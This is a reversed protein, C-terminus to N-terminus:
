LIGGLHCGRQSAGHEGVSDFSDEVAMNGKHNVNDEVFFIAENRQCFCLSQWCVNFDETASVSCRMDDNSEDVDPFGDAIVVIVADLVSILIQKVGDEDTIACPGAESSKKSWKLYFVDIFIFFFSFFIRLQLHMKM